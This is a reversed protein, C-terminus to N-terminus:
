RYIANHSRDVAELRVSGFWFHHGSGHDTTRCMDFTVALATCTRERPHHRWTVTLFLRESCHESLPAERGEMLLVLRAVLRKPGVSM